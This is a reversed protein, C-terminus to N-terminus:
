VFNQMFTSFFFCSGLRTTVGIGVLNSFLRGILRVYVLGGKERQFFRDQGRNQGLTWLNAWLFQCIQGFNQMFSFVELYSLSRPNPGRGSITLFLRGILM